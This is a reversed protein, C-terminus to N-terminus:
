PFPVDYSLLFLYFGSFAEPDGVRVDQLGGRIGTRGEDCTYEHIMYVPLSDVFESGMLTLHKIFMQGNLFFILLVFILFGIIHAKSLSNLLLVSHQFLLQYQDTCGM